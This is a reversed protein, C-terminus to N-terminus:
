ESPADVKFLLGNFIEVAEVESYALREYYKPDLKHVTEERNEQYISINIIENLHEYNNDIRLGLSLGDSEAWAVSVPYESFDFTVWDTTSAGWIKWNNEQDDMALPLYFDGTDILSPSSSDYTLKIHLTETAADFSSVTVSFINFNGTNAM